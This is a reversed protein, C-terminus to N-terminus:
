INLNTIIKKQTEKFICRLTYSNKTKNLNYKPKELLNGKYYFRNVTKNSSKNIYKSININNSSKNFSNLSHSKNLTKM